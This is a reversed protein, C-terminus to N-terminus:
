KNRTAQAVAEMLDAIALDLKRALKARVDEPEKNAKELEGKADNIAAKLDTLKPNSLEGQLVRRMLWRQMQFAANGQANGQSAAEWQEIARIVHPNSKVSFRQRHVEPAGSVRNISYSAILATEGDESIAYGAYNGSSVVDLPLQQESLVVVVQVQNSHNLEALVEHVFLRWRSDSMVQAGSEVASITRTSVGVRKATEGVSWGATTRWKLVLRGRDEPAVGELESM